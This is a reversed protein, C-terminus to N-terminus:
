KSYIDEDNDILTELAYLKSMEYAINDYKNSHKDYAVQLEKNKPNKALSELLCKM